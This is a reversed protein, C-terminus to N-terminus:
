AAVDYLSAYTIGDVVVSYGDQWQCIYTTYEPGDDWATKQFASGRNDTVSHEGALPFKVMVYYDDTGEKHFVLASCTDSFFLTRCDDSLANGVIWGRDTKELIKYLGKQGDWGQVFSTKEGVLVTKVQCQRFHAASFAEEPTEYAFLRNRLGVFAAEALFVALVIIAARKYGIKRGLLIALSALFLVSLVLLTPM